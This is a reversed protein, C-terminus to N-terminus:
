AEGESVVLFESVEYRLPADAFYTLMIPPITVVQWGKGWVKFLYDTLDKRPVVVSFQIINM